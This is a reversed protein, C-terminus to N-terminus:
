VGAPLSLNRTRLIALCLWAQVEVLNALHADRHWVDAMLLSKQVQRLSYFTETAHLPLRQTLGLMEKRGEEVAGEAASGKPPVPVGM